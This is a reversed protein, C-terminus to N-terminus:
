PFSGIFTVAVPHKAYPPSIPVKVPDILTLSMEDRGQKGASGWDNEIPFNV